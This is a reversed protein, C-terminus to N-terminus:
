VGESGILIAQHRVLSFTTSRVLLEGERYQPAPPMRSPKSTSVHASSTFPVIALLFILFAAVVVRSNSSRM